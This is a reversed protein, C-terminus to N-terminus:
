VAVRGAGYMTHMNTSHNAQAADQRERESPPPGYRARKVGHRAGNPGGCGKFDSMKFGLFIEHKKWLRQLKTTYNAPTIQSGNKPNFLVYGGPNAMAIPRWQILFASFTPACETLNIDLDNGQKNANRLRLYVKGNSEIVVHSQKSIDTPSFTVNVWDRRLAMYSEDPCGYLTACPIANALCSKINDVSAESLLFETLQQCKEIQQDSLVSSNDVPEPLADLATSMATWYLAKERFLGCAEYLLAINNITKKRGDAAKDRCYDLSACVIKDVDKMFSHCHWSGTCLVAKTEKNTACSALKRLVQQWIMRRDKWTEPKKTESAFPDRQTRLLPEADGWVFDSNQQLEKTYLEEFAAAKLKHVLVDINPVDAAVLSALSILSADLSCKRENGLRLHLAKNLAADLAPLQDKNAFATSYDLTTQAASM